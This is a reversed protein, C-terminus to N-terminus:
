RATKIPLLDAGALHDVLFQDLITRRYIDQLHNEGNAAAREYGEAVLPKASRFAAAEITQRQEDDLTTWYADIEPRRDPPSKAVARAHSRSPVIATPSVAAGVHVIRQNAIDERISTVLFGPPNKSISPDCNKLLRDFLAVNRTIQEIAFRKALTKAVRLSVGRAVLVACTDSIPLNDPKETPMARKQQVEIIWEGRRQKSYTASEIVGVAVLEKLAPQLREKLQGTDYDRSLGIKECAFTRLPFQWVSRYWFRKDLFRYAGHAAPRKLRRYIDFDLKKLYGNRCSEFFPRNWIFRSQSDADEVEPRSPRGASGVFKVYEIVGNAESDRWLKRGNDRWANFYHVSVGKWRHLSEEVRRYAWGTKKWDLIELLERKTFAVEPDSFDNKVRTHQLLALLVDEDKSSPLGFKDSGTICVRRKVIQGTKWDEFEDNFEITKLGAPVRDGLISHPFEALNMEDRADRPNFRGGRTKFTDGDTSKM